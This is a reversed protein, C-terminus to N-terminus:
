SKGTCPTHHPTSHVQRSEGGKGRFANCGAPTIAPPPREKLPWNMHFQPLSSHGVAMRRSEETHGTLLLSALSSAASPRAPCATGRCLAYLHYFFCFLPQSLTASFLVPSLLGVSSFPMMASAKSPPFCSSALASCHCVDLSM